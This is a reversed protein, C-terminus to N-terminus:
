LILFFVLISVNPACFLQTVSLYLIFFYVLVHNCYIIVILLRTFGKLKWVSMEYKVSCMSGKRFTGTVQYQRTYLGIVHCFTSGIMLKIMGESAKGKLMSGDKSCHSFFFRWGSHCLAKFYHRLFTFSCFGWKLSCVRTMETFWRASQRKGVARKSVGISSMGSGLYSASM